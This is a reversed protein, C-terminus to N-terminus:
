ESGGLEDLKKKITTKLEDFCTKCVDNPEVRLVNTDNKFKNGGQWELHLNKIRAVAPEDKIEKGCINCITITKTTM